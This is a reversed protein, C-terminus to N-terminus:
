KGSLKTRMAKIIRHDEFTLKVKHSNSATFLTSKPGYKTILFNIAASVAAIIAQIQVPLGITPAIVSAFCTGFAASITATTAAPAEAANLVCNLGDGAAKMYIAAPGGFVAVIPTGVAVLDVAIQIDTIVQSTSCGVMSLCLFIVIFISAKSKIKM